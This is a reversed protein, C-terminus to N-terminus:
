LSLAYAKDGSEYVQQSCRVLHCIEQSGNQKKISTPHSVSFSLGLYVSLSLSISLYIRTSPKTDLIRSRSKVPEKYRFIRGKAKLQHQYYSLALPPRLLWPANMPLM